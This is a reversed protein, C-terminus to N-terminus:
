FKIRKFDNGDFYLHFRTKIKDRIIVECVSSPYVSQDLRNTIKFNFEDNSQILEEEIMVRRSQGGEQLFRGGGFTLTFSSDSTRLLDITSNTSNLESRLLSIVEIQKTNLAYEFAQQAGLKMLSVRKFKDPMGWVVITDLNVFDKNQNINLIIREMKIGAESWNLSTKINSYFLLLMIIIGIGYFFKKPLFRDSIKVIVFSLIWVLGISAIFAYWRMFTPLVPLIFILYWGFSFIILEKERQNFTPFVKVLIVFILGFLLLGGIILQVITFNYFVIELWDPSVFSVPIYLLFNKMMSIISSGHFHNAMFPNSGIIVIRFFLYFSFVIFMLILLSTTKKLMSKEIPRTIIPILLLILFLIFAIEKSLLAFFFAAVVLIFNKTYGVNENLLNLTFILFLLIFIAALNEVMDSLWAVHLEHSPLIAFIIGSLIATKRDFGIKNASIAVLGPVVAYLLLSVIHFLFPHFGNILLILNYILKVLPRWYYGWSHLTWFPSFIEVFSSPVVWGIIQFDDNMFSVYIM